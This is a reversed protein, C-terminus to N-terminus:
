QKFIATLNIFWGGRWEDGLTLPSHNVTGLVVMPGERGEPCPEIMLFAAPGVGRLADEIMQKNDRRAIGIEIVASVMDRPGIGMDAM